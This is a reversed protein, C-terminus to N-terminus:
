TKEEQQNMTWSANRLDTVNWEKWMSYRILKIIQMKETLKYVGFESKIDNSIKDLMTCEKASRLFRMEASETSLLSRKKFVWTPSIINYIHVSLIDNWSQFIKM